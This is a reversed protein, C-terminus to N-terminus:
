VVRGPRGDADVLERGSAAWATVGGGLNAVDRGLHVLYQAAAASRHGSRCVVVVCRDAPVEEARAMLEGIPIHTSAEIHGADWEDPERVDLLWVDARVQDPTLDIPGADDGSPDHSTM